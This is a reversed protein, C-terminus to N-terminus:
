QIVWLEGVATVAQSFGDTCSHKLVRRTSSRKMEVSGTLRSGAPARGARILGPNMMLIQLVEVILCVHIYMFQGLM